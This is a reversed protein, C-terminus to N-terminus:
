LVSETPRAKAVTLTALLAAEGPALSLVADLRNGNKAQTSPWRFNRLSFGTETRAISGARTASESPAPASAPQPAWISRWPWTQRSPECM